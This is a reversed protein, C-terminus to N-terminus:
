RDPVMKIRRYSCTEENHRLFGQAEGGRQCKWGGKVVHGERWAAVPSCRPSCRPCGLGTFGTREPVTAANTGQCPISPLWRRTKIVGHTLESAPSFLECRQQEVLGLSAGETTDAQWTPEGLWYTRALMELRKRASPLRGVGRRFNGM